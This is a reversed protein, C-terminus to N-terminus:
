FTCVFRVATGPATASGVSQRDGAAYSLSWRSRHDSTLPSELAEQQRRAGEPECTPRVRGWPGQGVLRCELLPCLFSPAPHVQHGTPPTAKRSVGSSGHPM